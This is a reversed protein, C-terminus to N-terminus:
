QIATWLEMFMEIKAEEGRWTDKLAFPPPLLFTNERWIQELKKKKGNNNNSIKMM